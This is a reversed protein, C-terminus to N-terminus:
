VGRRDTIRQRCRSKISLKMALVDDVTVDDRFLWVCDNFARISEQFTQRRRFMSGQPQHCCRWRIQLNM